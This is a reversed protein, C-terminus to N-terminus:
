LNVRVGLALDTDDNGSSGNANTNDNVKAELFIFGVGNMFQYDTGVYTYAMEYDNGSQDSELMNFGGYFSFGSDLSYKAIFESGNADIYNGENDLEHFESTAVAAAVYIGDGNTGWTAALATITDDVTGSFGLIGANDNAEIETTNNSVGFWLNDFKYSLAIGYGNGVTGLDLGDIAKCFDDEPTDEEVDDCAEVNLIVDEDQAQFQLGLNFNGFSKRWTLAQEARGTGSLGGDGGLNYVGTANGGYYALIDTVGVIDYYVGWQKGVGFSGWKDHTFHVYGLRSSLADGADGAALSSDGGNTNLSFNKNKEFSMAWETTVGATWDGQIKRTFDLGWRSGGDTFEDSNETSEFTLRLYGRTGVTTEDDKYLELATVSQSLVLGLTAAITSIKLKHQM